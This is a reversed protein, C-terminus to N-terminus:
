SVLEIPFRRATSFTQEHIGRIIFRQGVQEPDLANATITAVDDPRIDGSGPIPVSLVGEQRALSQGQVDSERVISAVFRTRCPGSYIQESTNDYQLTTENLAGKVKRDITCAAEMMAAAIARGQELTSERSM